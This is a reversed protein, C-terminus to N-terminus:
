SHNSKDIEQFIGADNNEVDNVSIKINDIQSM